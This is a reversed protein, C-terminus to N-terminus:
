LKNTRFDFFNCFTDKEYPIIIKKLLLNKFLIHWRNLM